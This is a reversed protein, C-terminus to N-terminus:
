GSKGLIKGHCTRSFIDVYGLSIPNSRKHKRDGAGSPLHYPLSGWVASSLQYGMAKWHLHKGSVLGNTLPWSEPVSSFQLYRGCFILSGKWAWKEPFRSFIALFIPSIYSWKLIRSNENFQPVRWSLDAVSGGASGRRGQHPHPHRHGPTDPPTAPAAPRDSTVHCHGCAWSFWLFVM